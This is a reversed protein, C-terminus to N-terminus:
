LEVCAIDPAGQSERGRERERARDKQEKKHWGTTAAGSHQRESSIKGVMQLSFEREREKSSSRQKINM